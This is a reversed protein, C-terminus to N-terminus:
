FLKTQFEEKKNRKKLNTVENAVEKYEKESLYWKTVNNLLGFKNKYKEIDQKLVSSSYIKQNSVNIGNYRLLWFKDSNCKRDIFTIKSKKVIEECFKNKRAFSMLNNCNLCVVVYKTKKDFAESRRFDESQIGSTLRKIVVDYEISLRFAFSKFESGHNYCLPFTHIMEHLIVSLANKEEMELLSENFKLEFTKEKLNIRHCKGLTRISKFFTIDVINGIPYKIKLENEIKRVFNKFEKKDKSKM